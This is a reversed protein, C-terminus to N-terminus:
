TLTLQDICFVFKAVQLSFSVIEKKEKRFSNHFIIIVLIINEGVVYTLSGMTFALDSIFEISFMSCFSLNRLRKVNTYLILKERLDQNLLKM